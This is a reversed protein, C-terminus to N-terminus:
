SLCFLGGCACSPLGPDDVVKQTVRIIASCDGCEAKLLRTTQKKVTAGASLVPHPYEGIEALLANLRAALEETATTETMKGTLGLAVAPRKFDAKHGRIGSAHILEHLLVDLVRTGDGILPSIYVQPFGSASHEGQWCQGITQNRSSLAKRSPFGVSVHVKEPLSLGVAVIDPRLAEVAQQLWGERTTETQM